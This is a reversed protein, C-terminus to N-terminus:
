ALNANVALVTIKNPKKSKITFFVDSDSTGPYIVKRLGSYPEAIGTIHETVGNPNVIEPLYSKSFRIVIDTIRKQGTVNNNIVPMSTMLSEYEYGIYVNDVYLDAKNPVESLKVATTGDWVIADDTYQPWTEATFKSWSDLYVPNTEDLNLEEMYVADDYKVAAYMTDSANNGRVVAVSLVKGKGHEYRSWGMIGTSKEYLLVAITGNKKTILLRSYPNNMYDFDVAESEELIEPNAITINNATFAKSDENWYYERVARKGQSFFIVAEGVYLSQIDDSSHRGHLSVSISLADSGSPVVYESSETGIILHQSPCTWKVTDNQDSALEFYFSNDATTMDTKQIDYEYDDSTASGAEKWLQITIAETDIKRTAPQSITITDETISVVKTGVPIGDASVYYDTAEKKIVNRLDQTVGTITFSGQEVSGSFLHLDPDKIVRSVTVYHNFAEFTTYRDGKEDPASSAWIKQPKSITSGLWLRGQYYAVVGPYNTPTQFTTIDKPPLDPDEEPKYQGYDDIVEINPEFDFTLKQLTFASGSALSLEFPPYNRHVFIIRDFDQVYQVERIESLTLPLWNVTTEGATQGNYFYHDAAETPEVKVGNLWLDIYGPGMEIVYSTSKNIIFPIVRAEGTLLGCRKFGNRREIGGTPIINFNKLRSAGQYYSQLDARGYLKESLEGSAFNTILM